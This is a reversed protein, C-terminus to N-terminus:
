ADWDGAGVTRKTERRIRFYRDGNRKSVQGAPVDTIEIVLTRHPYRIELIDGAAVDRAPKATRGNLKICGAELGKRGQSRTKVLCLHKLLLDIRM